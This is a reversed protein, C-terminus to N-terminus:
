HVCGDSKESQCRQCRCEFFWSDELEQRRQTITQDHDIYSICLEEGTEVSRTTTFHMTRGVRAKKVNPYCSHNFYSAGVWLGWGLMEDKSDGDWIGFANGTDRALVGRVMSAYPKLHQPLSHCLFAYLRLHAAFIYPRMRVNSLESSQLGLFEAWPNSTSIISSVALNALGHDFVYRQVIASAVLRSIELEMDELNMTSCYSSLRARSSVFEEADAWAKDIQHQTIQATSGNPLIPDYGLHGDKPQRRTAMKAKALLANVDAIMPGTVGSEWAIKCGDTCFWASEATERRSRISWTRPDGINRSNSAAYAFCQACVERRYDKCIVHAFPAECAFIITGPAIPQMAFLSRGGHLTTRLDILPQSM